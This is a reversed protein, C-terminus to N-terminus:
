AFIDIRLPNTDEPQTPSGVYLLYLVAAIEVWGMRALEGLVSRVEWKPWYNEHNCVWEKGKTEVLEYFDDATEECDCDIHLEREDTIPDKRVEAIEELLERAETPTILQRLTSLLTGNYTKRDVQLQKINQRLGSYDYINM